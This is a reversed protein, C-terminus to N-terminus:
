DQSRSPILARCTSLLDELQVPKPLFGQVGVVPAKLTGASAVLITLTQLQVDSRAAQVFDYGNMVPMMLDLIVLAPLSPASRLLLLAEQGNTATEVHYGEIELVTQLSTRVDFDDDVVLIRM